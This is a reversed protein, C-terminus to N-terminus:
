PLCYFHAQLQIYHLKWALMNPKAESADTRHCSFACTCGPRSKCRISPLCGVEPMRLVCMYAAGLLFLREVETHEALGTVVGGMAM